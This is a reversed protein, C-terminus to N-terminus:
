RRARRQDREILRSIWDADPSIASASSKVRWPGFWTEYYEYYVSSNVGLLRGKADIVPGGSDGRLMPGTHDFARWKAGRAESQAAEAKLIVGGAVRRGGSSKQALHVGGYGAMLIPEGASLAPHRALPLWFVPRIDAKLLAIDAKDQSGLWVVRAPRAELKKERTWALVKLPKDRSVCHAATLFYGDASIPAASGFASGVGPELSFRYSTRGTQTIGIKTKGTIVRATRVRVYDEAVIGAISQGKWPALNKPARALHKRELAVEREAETTQCAPLAWCLALLLLIFCRAPFLM